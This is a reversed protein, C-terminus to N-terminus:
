TSRIWLRKGLLKKNGIDIICEANRNYLDINILSTIGIAEKSEKDEIMYSKSHSSSMISQCFQAVEDFSYVDLTPNTFHMVEVDNRWQYYTKVDDTTFKRLSIRKSQFM